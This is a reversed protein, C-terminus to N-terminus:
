LSIGAHYISRLARATMGVFLKGTKDDEEGPNLGVLMMKANDPGEGPVANEADKWLSCKKCKKIEWILEELVL